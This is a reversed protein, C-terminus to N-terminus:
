SGPLDIGGRSILASTSLALVKSKGSPRYAMSVVPLTEVWAWFATWFILASCVAL